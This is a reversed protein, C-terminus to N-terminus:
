RSSTTSASETTGLVALVARHVAPLSGPRRPYALRWVPVQEALSGYRDLLTRNTAAGSTDLHYSQVLMTMAAELPAVPTTNVTRSPSHTPDNLLFIAALPSSDSTFEVGDRESEVLYRNNRGPQRGLLSRLAPGRLRARQYSPVVVPLGTSQDIILCDDAQLPHGSLGFSVALTSKGYGSEGLFAASGCPTRVCTAHLVVKGLYGLLRPLVHDLVLQCTDSAPRRRLPDVTITPTVPDVRVRARSLYHLLYDSGDRWVRAEVAGHIDDITFIAASRAPAPVAGLRVNVDAPNCGDARALLNEFELESDVTWDGFRYHPM